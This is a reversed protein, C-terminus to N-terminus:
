GRLGAFDAARVSGPLPSTRYGKLRLLVRGDVDAVEVDFGGGERPVVVAASEVEGDGVHLLELRDFAHPLGMRGASAIEALGATQFALEVLRPAVLTCPAPPDHDPPLNAAFRGVVAGEARWADRLVRYAPGHFYTGYITSAEVVDAEGLPVARTRTSEAVGAVLRVTGAFYTTVEPGDRGVLVRTGLLACRALLDQGDADWFVRVTVTRPEDRYFKFPAHFRVEELAAVSMGPFPLRAAEAMAELGMVGPLVAVDDIRHHDLFPQVRPDLEARVVMGDHLSLSAVQGVLPGAAPLAARLFDAELAMAEPREVLMAGLGGAIVAEGRGGGCLERRVVAIGEEPALMDIGAARMIAPISGRAAMGIDRWATWDLAIARTEPRTRGLMSMAKCLLDNAAAYDTQGANGFRGAISSFAVVSGLPTRGLADLLNFWGEVKVDFVLAFEEASKDPLSRSIELGAAHLLVDVRGHAEVVERVVQTVAGADRLDLSRYHVTGGAQEIARIAELAAAARELRALEREVQVPTVRGGDAQLRAFLDRKLGERDPGVRAVDPDDPDPEPALDLLWYTGGDVALDKLIATVISGAAGTVLHVADQARPADGAEVPREELGVAWRHGAAYGVEVVGQDRETETLLVEALAATKRSPEFDVAKVV